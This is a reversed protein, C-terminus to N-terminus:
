LLNTYVDFEGGTCIHISNTQQLYRADQFYGHIDKTGILTLSSQDSTPKTYVRVRTGQGSILPNTSSYSYSYSIGAMIVIIHTDTLQLSDIYIPSYMYSGQYMDDGNSNSTDFLPENDMKVQTIMNGQRDWVVLYDGYAAYVYTDDRKILDAEDADQKQNNTHGFASRLASVENTTPSATSFDAADAYQEEYAREQQYSRINALIIENIVFQLASTLAAEFEELSAYPVLAEENLQPLEIDGFPKDFSKTLDEWPRNTGTDQTATTTSSTTSNTTSSTTTSTTDTSSSTGATGSQQNNMCNCNCSWFRSGIVAGVVVGILVLVGVMLVLLVKDRSKTANTSAVTEQQSGSTETKVSADSKVNPTDNRIGEEVIGVAMYDHLVGHGTSTTNSTDVKM